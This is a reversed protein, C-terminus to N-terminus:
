RTSNLNKQYNPHEGGTWKLKIKNDVIKDVIKDQQGLM